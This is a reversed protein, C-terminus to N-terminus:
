PRQTAVVRRLDMEIDVSAPYDISQRRQEESHACKRASTYSLGSEALDCLGSKETLCVVVSKETLCVV